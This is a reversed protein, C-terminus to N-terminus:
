MVSERERQVREGWEWKLMERGSFRGGPRARWACTNQCAEQQERLQQRLQLRQHRLEQLEM